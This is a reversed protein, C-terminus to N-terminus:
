RAEPATQALPEADRKLNEVRLRYEQLINEVQVERLGTVPEKKWLVEAFGKDEYREAMELNADVLLANKTESDALERRVTELAGRLRDREAETDRLRSVAERYKETTEVLREDTRQIRENASEVRQTFREVLAESRAQVQDLEAGLRTVEGELQTVKMALAENEGQLAAKENNLQRLMFQARKLARQQADDQAFVIGSWSASALVAVVLVISRLRSVTM